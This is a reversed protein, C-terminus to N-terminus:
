VCLQTEQVQKLKHSSHFAATDAAKSSVLYPPSMIKIKMAYVALLTMTFHLRGLKLSDPNM